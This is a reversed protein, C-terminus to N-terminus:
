GMDMTGEWLLAEHSVVPCLLCWHPSSSQPPCGLKPSGLSALDQQDVRYSGCGWVTLHGPPLPCALLKGGFPPQLPCPPPLPVLTGPCPLLHSPVCCALPM